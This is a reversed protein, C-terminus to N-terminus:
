SRVRNLVFNTCTEANEFCFQSLCETSPPISIACLDLCREFARAGICRLTSLGEFELRRIWDCSHFAGDCIADIERSIRVCSSKGFFRILRHGDLSLLFEGCVQFYGNGEVIWIEPLDCRAFASGDITEVLTPICISRLRPCFSFAFPDIRRLRSCDPFEIEPLEAPISFAHKCVVEIDDDIWVIPPRGFYYVLSRGDFSLLFDGSVRFYRNGEAVQIIRVDSGCFAGGDVTDVSPPLCISRLQPCLGFTRSEICRLKSGSGFEVESVDPWVSFASKCIVEIGDDIRVVTCRGFYQILSRGDFTLLFNGSM